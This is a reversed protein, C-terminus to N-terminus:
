VGCTGPVRYELMLGAVRKTLLTSRRALQAASLKCQIQPNDTVKLWLCSFDSIPAKCNSASLLLTSMANIGLHIWLNMNAVESCSGTYLYGLAGTAKYKTAAWITLITNLLCVTSAITSCVIVGVKWGSFQRRFRSSKTLTSDRISPPTQILPDKM